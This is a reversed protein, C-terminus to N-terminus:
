AMLDLGTCLPLTLREESSEIRKSNHIVQDTNEVARVQGRAPVEIGFEQLVAAPEALLRKKLGDDALAKAVIKSWQNNQQEQNM